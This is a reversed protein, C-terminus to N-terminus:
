DANVIEEPIVVLEMNYSVFGILFTFYFHFIIYEISSKDIVKHLM